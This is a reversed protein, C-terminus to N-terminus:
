RVSRTQENAKVTLNDTMRELFQTLALTEKRSFGRFVEAHFAAEGESMLRAFLKTAKATAGVRKGRSDNPNASRRILGRREMGALLRTLTASTIGLTKQLARQDLGGPAAPPEVDPHLLFKLVDFQAATLGSVQLRADLANRTAQYARKLAFLTPPPM